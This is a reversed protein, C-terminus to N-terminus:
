LPCIRTKPGLLLPHPSFLVAKRRKEDYSDGVTNGKPVLDSWLLNTCKCGIRTYPRVVAPPDTVALTIPVSKLQREGLGLVGSCISFLLSHLKTFLRGAVTFIEACPGILKEAVLSPGGTLTVQEPGPGLVTDLV